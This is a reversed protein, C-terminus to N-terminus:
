FWNSEVDNYTSTALKLIKDLSYCEGGNFKMISTMYYFWSIAIVVFRINKDLDSNWRASM